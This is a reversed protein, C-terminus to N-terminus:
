QKEAGFAGSVQIAGAPSTGHTSADFTGIINNPADNESTAVGARTPDGALQGQWVGTVALGDFSGTTLGSDLDLNTTAVGTGADGASTGEPLTIETDDGAANVVASGGLVVTWNGLSEGGSMFKSVTGGVHAGSTAELFDATLNAEATFM